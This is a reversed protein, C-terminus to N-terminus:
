STLVASISTLKKEDQTKGSPGNKVKDGLELACPHFLVSKVDSEALLTATFFILQKRSRAINGTLTKAM